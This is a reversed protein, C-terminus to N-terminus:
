KKIMVSNDEYVWKTTFPLVDSSIVIEFDETVNEVGLTSKVKDLYEKTVIGFEYPVEIRKLKPTRIEIGKKIEEYKKHFVDPKCPYFEGRLGKIIYDDKSAIMVGELTLISLEYGLNAVHEGAFERIEDYNDGTWQVAQIECPKTKYNKIM